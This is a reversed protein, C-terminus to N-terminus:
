FSLTDNYSSDDSLTANVNLYYTGVDSSSCSYITFTQASSSFTIFSPLASGNTQTAAYSFTLGNCTTSYSYSGVTITTSSSGITYTYLSTM